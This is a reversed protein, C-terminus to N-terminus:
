IGVMGYACTERNRPLTRRSLHLPDSQGILIVHSVFTTGRAHGFLSAPQFLDPGKDAKGLPGQRRDNRRRGDRHADARSQSPRHEKSRMSRRCFTLPLVFWVGRSSVRWRDSTRGPELKEERGMEFPETDSCSRRRHCHVLDVHCTTSM